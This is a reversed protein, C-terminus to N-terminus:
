ASGFACDPVPLTGHASRHALDGPEDHAEFRIAGSGYPVDHRQRRRPSL